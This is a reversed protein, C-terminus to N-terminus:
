KAPVEMIEDYKRFEKKDIISHLDKNRILLDSFEPQILKKGKISWGLRELEKKLTNKKLTYRFFEQLTIEFSKKADLETAGYGTIELAPSFLIINKGEKFQIISLNGKIGTITKM